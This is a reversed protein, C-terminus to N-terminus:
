PICGALYTGKVYQLSFPHRRFQIQLCYGSCSRVLEEWREERGVDWELKDDLGDKCILGCVTRAVVVLDLPYFLELSIGDYRM